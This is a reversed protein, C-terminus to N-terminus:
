NGGNALNPNPPTGRVPEDPSQRNGIKRAPIGAWIEWEGTSCTLVANAGIITGTGVITVGNGGLIKSGPYLVVEDEIVVKEMQSKNRAVHADARGITVGHYITVNSHIETAPHIVTGMARHQLTLGSGITVSAPIELGYFLMLERAWRHRRARVLREMVSM